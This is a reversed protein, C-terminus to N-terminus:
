IETFDAYDAIFLVRTKLTIKLVRTREYSTGKYGQSTPYRLRIRSKSWFGALRSSAKAFASQAKPQYFREYPPQQFLPM